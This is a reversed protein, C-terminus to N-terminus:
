KEGCVGWNEAISQSMGKCKVYHIYMLHDVIAGFRKFGYPGSPRQLCKEPDHTSLHDDSPNLTECFACKMGRPTVEKLGNLM